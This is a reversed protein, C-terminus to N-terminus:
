KGKGRLREFAMVDCEDIPKEAKYDQIVSDIADSCAQEQARLRSSIAPLRGAPRTDYGNEYREMLFTGLAIWVLDAGADRTGIELLGMAKDAEVKGDMGGKAPKMANIAALTTLANMLFEPRLRAQAQDTFIRRQALQTLHDMEEVYRRKAASLAMRDGDEQARVSGGNAALAAFAVCIVALKRM